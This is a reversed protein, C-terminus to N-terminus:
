FLNNNDYNNIKINNNVVHLSNIKYKEKLNMTVNKKYNKKKKKQTM